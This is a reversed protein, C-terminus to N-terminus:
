KTQFEPRGSVCTATLKVEDRDEGSNSEFDIRLRTPGRDHVKVWYGVDPQASILSIAAEDCAARVRGGAGRWTGVSPDPHQSPGGTEPLVLTSAGVRAGAQSIVAWTLLSAATVTALWLLAVLM